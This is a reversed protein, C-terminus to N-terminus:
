IMIEGLQIIPQTNTYSPVDAVIEECHVGFSPQLSEVSGFALHGLLFIVSRCGTRRREIGKRATDQLAAGVLRQVMPVNRQGYYDM